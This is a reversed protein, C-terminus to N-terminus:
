ASPAREGTLGPAVRQLAKLGRIKGLSFGGALWLKQTKRDGEDGPGGQGMSQGGFQNWVWGWDAVGVERSDGRRGLGVAGEAVGVPRSEDIIGALGMGGSLSGSWKM